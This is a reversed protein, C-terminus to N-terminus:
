EADEEDYIGMSFTVFGRATEIAKAVVDDPVAIEDQLRKAKKWDRWRLYKFEEVYKHRRTPRQMHFVADLTVQVSHPTVVINFRWIKQHLKDDDERVIDFNM